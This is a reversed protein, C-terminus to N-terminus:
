GSEWAGACRETVGVHQARQWDCVLEARVRELQRDRVRPGGKDATEEGACRFQALNGGRPASCPRGKEMRHRTRPLYISAGAGREM